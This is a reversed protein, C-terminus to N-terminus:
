RKLWSKFHRRWRPCNPQNIIEWRVIVDGRGVVRGESYVPMGAGRVRDEGFLGGAGKCNVRAAVVKGDVGSFHIRADRERLSESWPVQVAIVLDKGARAFCEHAAEEVVFVVDQFSGDRRQHGAGRCPISTGHMTGPPVRVDLLIHERTGSMYFRTIRFRLDRGHYLDELTLALPFRWTKSSNKGSPFPIPVQHTVRNHPRSHPQPEQHPSGWPDSNAKVDVWDDLKLSEVSDTGRTGSTSFIESAAYDSLHLAEGAGKRLVSEPPSSPATSPAEFSQFSGETSSSAATSSSYSRQSQPQSPVSIDSMSMRRARPHPTSPRTHTRTPHNYHTNSGSERSPGYEQGQAYLNKYQLADMLAEFAGQVAIFQETAESNTEGARIRDPHWRLAQKRHAAKIEEVSADARVGLIQYPSPQTSM